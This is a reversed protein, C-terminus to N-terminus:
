SPSQHSWHSRYFTILPTIANPLIHRLMIRFSSVGLAKASDVYTLQKLKYFEGRMYYSIGIWSLAGYTVLLVMFGRGFFAGAILILYLFPIASFIEIIRQMLIDTKGGFYGQIGGILTGM